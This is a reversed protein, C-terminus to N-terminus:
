KEQSIFGTDNERIAKDVKVVQKRIIRAKETLVDLRKRCEAKDKENKIIAKLDDIEFDLDDEKRTLSNYLSYLQNVSLGKISFAEKKILPKKCDANLMEDINVYDTKTVEQYFDFLDLLPTQIKLSYGSVGELIRIAEKIMQLEAKKQSIKKM